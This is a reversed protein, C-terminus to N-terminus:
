LYREVIKKGRSGIIPAWHKRSFQEKPLRGVTCLSSFLLQSSIHSCLQVYSYMIIIGYANTQTLIAKAIRTSMTIFIYLVPYLLYNHPLFNRTVKQMFYQLLRFHNIYIIQIFREFQKTLTRAIALAMLLSLTALNIQTPYLIVIVAKNLLSLIVFYGHQSWMFSLKCCETYVYM